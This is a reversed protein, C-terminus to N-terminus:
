QEILLGEFVALISDIAFDLHQEAEHGIVEFGSQGNIAIGRALLSSCIYNIM